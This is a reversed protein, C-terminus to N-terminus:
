MLIVASGITEMCYGPPPPYVYWVFNSQGDHVHDLKCTKIKSFKGVLGGLDPGAGRGQGARFSIGRGCM